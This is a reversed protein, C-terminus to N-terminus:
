YSGYFWNGRASPDEATWYEWQAEALEEPSVLGDGDRDLYEFAAYADEQSTGLPNLHTAFENRDLKGDRDLDLTDFLAANTSLSRQKAWPLRVVVSPWM